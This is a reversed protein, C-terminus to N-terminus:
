KAGPSVFTKALGVLWNTRVEGIEATDLLPQGGFEVATFAM